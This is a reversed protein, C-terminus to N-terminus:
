GDRREERTLVYLGHTVLTALFKWGCLSLLLLGISIPWVHPTTLAAVGATLSAWGGLLAATAALEARAAVLGGLVRRGLAWARADM